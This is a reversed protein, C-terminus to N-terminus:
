QISFGLQQRVEFFKKAKTIFTQACQGRDGCGSSTELTCFAALQVRSEKWSSGRGQTGFAAEIETTIPLQFVITFGNLFLFGEVAHCTADM